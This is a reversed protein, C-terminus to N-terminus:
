TNSEPLDPLKAWHTINWCNAIEFGDSEWTHDDANVVEGTRVVMKGSRFGKLVILVENGQQPMEEKVSIWKM